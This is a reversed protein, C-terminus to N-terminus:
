RSAIQQFLGWGSLCSATTLIAASFMGAAFLWWRSRYLPPLQRDLYLAAIMALAVGANTALFAVIATMTSFTADIWVLPTAVLFVYAAIVFRFRHLSFKRTPWIATCFDHTVRTYIEPYAQVTGWLAAVICVYYVWVLSPHISRWIYGQDTLLSWGNFVSDLEGSALQPRLVAAGAIMFSASVIWLVLAGMGVDCRLPLLLRRLRAAQAPDNPLYDRPSGAAARRRIADVDPHCCLGWRHVGVFNAYAIYTMVSGGVYGFTTALTLLWHDRVAAPTWPPVDTPLRGFSLSGVLAAAFDPRVMLTGAITGLVLVACILVQQKELVAFSQGIGLLLAALIFATGFLAKWVAAHTLLTEAGSGNATAIQVLVHHILEGSPRALAAWLPGAAGLELAIIALLVWGRPGPLRVLRQGIAEGSVATYRGLLYTVCVGKTLVSLLVLWLLQYGAWSGAQVVVITEGAGISVSALIAAPGFLAGLRLLKGLSWREALVGTPQPITVSDQAV